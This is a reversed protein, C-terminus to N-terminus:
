ATTRRSMQSLPRAGSSTAAAAVRAIVSVSKATEAIPTDTKTAGSTHTVTRYANVRVADLEVADRSGTADVAQAQALAVASYLCASVLVALRGRRIPLSKSM